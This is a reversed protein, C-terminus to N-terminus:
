RSTNRRGFLALLRTLDDADETVSCEPGILGSSRALPAFERAPGLSIEGLTM